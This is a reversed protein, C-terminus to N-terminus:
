RALSQRRGYRTEIEAWLRWTDPRFSATDDILEVRGSAGGRLTDRQDRAIKVTLERIPAPVAEWGWAGRIQVSGDASPWITLPADATRRLEIAHYPRGIAAANRARPWIWADDLDWAYQDYRGTRDYDPRIGDDAVSRLAFALGDEDRLELVSGGRSAFLYTADATPAFHGPTVGLKQDILRAAATLEDDLLDDDITTGASTRARYQAATAYQASTALPSGFLEGRLGESLDDKRVDRAIFTVVEVSVNRATSLGAILLEGDSTHGLYYGDAASAGIDTLPLGGSRRAGATQVATEVLRGIRFLGTIYRETLTWDLTVQITEATEQAPLIMGTGIWTRGRGNLGSASGIIRRDLHPNALTM